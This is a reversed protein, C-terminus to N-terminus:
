DAVSARGELSQAAEVAAKVAGVTERDAPALAAEDVSLWLPGRGAKMRLRLLGADSLVCMESVLVHALAEDDLPNAVVRLFARVAEVEPRGFFSGGAVITYDLDHRALAAAYEDAHTM